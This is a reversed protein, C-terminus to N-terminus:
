EYVVGTLNNIASSIIKSLITVCEEIDKISVITDNIDDKLINKIGNCFEHIEKHKGNNKSVQMVSNIKDFDIGYKSFTDGVFTSAYILLPVGISYVNRTIKKGICKRKNGIGGGPCLGNDTVQISRGLREVASACLSDILILHTPNVKSVVGEVIDVTEIGTLGMVSPAIAMVKPLSNNEITINVGGVVKAGLSDSSIHRNGLGVVLVRDGVSINGIIERLVKTVIGVCKRIDKESFELVDQISLLNYRGKPKGYERVENENKIEYKEIAVHFNESVFEESTEVNKLLYDFLIDSYM